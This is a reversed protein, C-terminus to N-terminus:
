HYILNGEFLWSGSSGYATCIGVYKVDFLQPDRHSMFPSNEGERGVSITNDRWRVWFGRLENNNVIGPTAAAAVDPSQGIIRIISKTNSWGGIAIEYIRGKELPQSSLAVHCDNACCVKFKFEGNYAPYFIYRKKDPTNVKPM